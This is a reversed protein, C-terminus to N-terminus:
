EWEIILPGINENQKLPIASVILNIGDFIGHCVVPM